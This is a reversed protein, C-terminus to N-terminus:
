AFALLLGAAAGGAIVWLVDVRTRDLLILAAIAIALAPWHPAEIGAPFIVTGAFVFALNAIVGV